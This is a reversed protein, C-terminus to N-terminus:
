VARLDSLLNTVGVWDIIPLALDEAQRAWSRAVSALAGGRTLATARVVVSVAGTSSAELSWQIQGDADEAPMMRIQLPTGAHDLQYSVWSRGRVRRVLAPREPGSATADM